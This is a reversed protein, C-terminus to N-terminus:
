LNQARKEVSNLLIPLQVETLKKTIMGAGMMRVKIDVEVSYVVETTGDGNDSLEWSGSNVSFIDGEVFSWKISKNEEHVLNLVYSFKKIMNISYEAKTENGSESIVKVSTVGDMFESYAEYDRLVQYIKEAPAKMTVTKTASAM